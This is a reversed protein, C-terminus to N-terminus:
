KNAVKILGQVLWNAIAQRNNPDIFRVQDNPNRINGLEIYVANAKTERLELLNRVTITGYYGRGPQNIEYKEKITNYLTTAINRAKNDGKKYYYFIDIRKEQYRSDLHIILTTQSKATAKNKEYLNNMIITRKTLRQTQNSSITDNGYYYEDNDCELYQDERIGDNPDQLIMYVKAGHELLGKALRLSVDYAYEDECLTKGDKIGIAGPDIGGHGSSIYYVRGNLENDKIKINENNKGFLKNNFYFIEEKKPINESVLENNRYKLFEAPVYLKKSKKFNHKIIKNRSLKLNYNEIQKAYDYSNIDTSSRITNGDFNFIKIPLNYSVGLYLEGNSKYKGKNIDKFENIYFDTIPLYYKKLLITIGDGPKCKVSLYECKMSNPFIVLLIIIYIIKLFKM